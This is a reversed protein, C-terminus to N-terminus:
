TAKWFGSPYIIFGEFEESNKLMASNGIILLFRDDRLFNTNKVFEALERVLEKKDENKNLYCILVKLQSRLNILKNFNYIIRERKPKNEHEVSIIPFNSESLDDLNERGDFFNYDVCLFEMESARPNKKHHGKLNMNYNKEIDHMTKEIAATWERMGIKQRKNPIFYNPNKANSDFLNRFDKYFVQPNIIKSKM